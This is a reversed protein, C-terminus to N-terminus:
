SASSQPWFWPVLCLLMELWRGHRTLSFEKESDVELARNLYMIRLQIREWQAAAKLLPALMVAMPFAMRIQSAAKLHRLWPIKRPTKLRPAM